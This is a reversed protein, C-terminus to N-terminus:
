EYNDGKLADIFFIIFLYALLLLLIIGSIALYNNPYKEYIESLTNLLDTM